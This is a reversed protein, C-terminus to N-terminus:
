FDFCFFNGSNNESAILFVVVVVVVVFLMWARAHFIKRIIENWFKKLEKLREQKAKQLEQEYFSGQIPEGM